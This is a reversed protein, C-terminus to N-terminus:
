SVNDLKSKLENLVWHEQTIKKLEEETTRLKDLADTLDSEYKDIKLKAEVVSKELSEKLLGKEKVLRQNEASFNKNLTVELNLVKENFETQESALRAEYDTVLAERELKFDMKLQDVEQSNSVTLSEIKAQYNARHAAMEETLSKVQNELSRIMITNRDNQNLSENELARREEEIHELRTKTATLEHQIDSITSNKQLNSAELQSIESSKELLNKAQFEFRNKFSSNEFELEALKAQLAKNEDTSKIIADNLKNSNSGNNELRIEMQQLKEKLVEIEEERLGVENLTDM